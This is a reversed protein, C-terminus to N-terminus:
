IPWNMMTCNVEERSRLLPQLCVNCYVESSSTNPKDNHATNILLKYVNVCVVVVVEVM